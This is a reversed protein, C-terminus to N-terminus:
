SALRVTDVRKENRWRNKEDAVCSMLLMAFEDDPYSLWPPGLHRASRKRNLEIGKVSPM